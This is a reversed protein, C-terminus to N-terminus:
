QKRKYEFLLEIKEDVPLLRFRITQTKKYLSSDGNIFWSKQYIKDKDPNVQLWVFLDLEEIDKQTQAIFRQSRLDKIITRNGTIVGLINDGFVKWQLQFNDSTFIVVWPVSHKPDFSKFQKLAKHIMDRLKSITTNWLYLGTKSDLKHEPTKVECFFVTRGNEQVDFDSSKNRPALTRPSIRHPDFGQKRLYEETLSLAQAETM